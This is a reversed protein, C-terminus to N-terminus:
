EKRLDTEIEDIFYSLNDLHLMNEHNANVQTIKMNLAYPQWQEAADLNLDYGDVRKNAVFLKVPVASPQPKYHFLLEMRSWIIEIWNDINFRGNFQADPRLVSLQREMIIKFNERVKIENPIDVWSDFMVIKKVNLGTKKLQLGMEYAITGGSSHGFIFVSSATLNSLLKECYFSAQEEISSFESYDGSLFRDQLGFVDNRQKLKEVLPKYSFLTGGLPHVFVLSTGSVESSKKLRIFCDKQEYGLSNKILIKQQFFRPNKIFDEVTLNLLFISNIKNHLARTLFDNGGCIYFNDTDQVKFKGLIDCWVESLKEDVNIM